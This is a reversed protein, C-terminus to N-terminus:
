SSSTNRAKRGKPDVGQFIELQHKAALPLKSQVNGWTFSYNLTNPDQSMTPTLQWARTYARQFWRASLKRDRDKVGYPSSDKQGTRRQQKLSKPKEVIAAPKTAYDQWSWSAQEGAEASTILPIAPTRREPVKWEGREQGRNSLQKLMDWEGRGLPPMMKEASRRWWHARKTQRLNEGPPKGWITEKPIFQDPDITKVIAGRWSAMGKTDRQQQRQSSLLRLLKKQDWKDFFQKKIRAESEESVQTPLGSGKATKNERDASDLAEELAGTDRPGQPIVFKAMLERRRSGTRGFGKAILGEMASQEGSNAARLTRLATQARTLHAKERADYKRHRHFRDQIVSAIEARFAPPLYSCERLLHRYLQVASPSAPLPYSPAPM